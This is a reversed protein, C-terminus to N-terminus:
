LGFNRAAVVIAIAVGQANQPMGHCGLANPLASGRLYEVALIRWQGVQCSFSGLLVEPVEELM